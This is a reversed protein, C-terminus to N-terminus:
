IKYAKVKHTVIITTATGSPKGIIIVKTNDDFIFLISLFLTKTLFSVPISVAPLKFIRKVSLVPVRVFPLKSTIPM